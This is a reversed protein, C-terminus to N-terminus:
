PAASPFLFASIARSRFTLTSVTRLQRMRQILKWDMGSESRETASRSVSAGRGPLGDCIVASCIHWITARAQSCGFSRGILWQVPRSIASSIICRPITGDIEGRCAARRNFFPIELRMQDAVPQRRWCVRVFVLGDSRDTRHIVLCRRQGPLTLARDTGVLQGPHLSEFALMGSEGQGRAMDLSPFELVLPM